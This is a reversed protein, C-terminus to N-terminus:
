RGNGAALSHAEAAPAARRTGANSSSQSWRTALAALAAEGLPLGTIVSVAKGGRGQTVRSVRV